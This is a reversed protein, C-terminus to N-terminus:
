DGVMDSNRFAIIIENVKAWIDLEAADESLLEIPAMRSEIDMIIKEAYPTRPTVENDTQAKTIYDTYPIDAM